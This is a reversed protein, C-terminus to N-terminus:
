QKCRNNAPYRQNFYAIPIGQEQIHKKYDQWAAPLYDCPLDCGWGPKVLCRLSFGYAHQRQLPSAHSDIAVSLYPKGTPTPFWYHSQRDRYHEPMEVYEEVMGASAQFTPYIPMSRMLSLSISTIVGNEVHVAARLQASPAVRAYSLWTNEILFTYNCRQSSCQIGELSRKQRDAIVQLDPITSSGVRLSYLDRVLQEARSKVALGYFTLVIVSTVLLGVIAILIKRQTRM